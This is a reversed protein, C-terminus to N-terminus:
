LFISRSYSPVRSCFSRRVSLAVDILLTLNHNRELRDLGALTINFAVICINSGGGGKLKQIDEFNECGYHRGSV